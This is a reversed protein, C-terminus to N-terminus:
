ANTTASPASDEYARKMMEKRLWVHDLTIIDGDAKGGFLRQVETTVSSDSTLVYSCGDSLSILNLMWHSDFANLTKRVLDIQNMVSSVDWVVLQSFISPLAYDHHEIKTDNNLAHTLNDMIFTQCAQFYQAAFDEALGAIKLLKIYADHDRQKTIKAQFNLTNDLIAAALLEANAPSLRDLLQASEYREFILTAVAGIPEIQIRSKSDQWLREFGAHHDIVEIISNPRVIKDFFEPNSVDLIIFQDDDSPSYTDLRSPLSLLHETISENLTATSVAVAEHGQLRLLDRYALCSAYADIDIYKSGSTVVIM